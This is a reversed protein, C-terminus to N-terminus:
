AAKASQSAAIFDDHDVGIGLGDARVVVSRISQKELRERHLVHDVDAFSDFREPHDNLEAPLRREIESSASSVAPTGIMPVLGSAM